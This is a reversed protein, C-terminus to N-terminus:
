TVRGGSRRASFLRWTGAAQQLSPPYHPPSRDSRPGLWRPPGPLFRHDLLSSRPRWIAPSYTGCDVAWRNPSPIAARDSSPNWCDWQASATQQDRFPAASESVDSRVIAELHPSVLGSSRSRHSSRHLSPHLLYSSSSSSRQVPVPRSAPDPWSPMEFLAGPVLDSPKPLVSRASSSSLSARPASPNPWAEERWPASRTHLLPHM